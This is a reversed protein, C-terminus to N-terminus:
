RAATTVMSRASCALTRSRQGRGDPPFLSSAPPCPALNRPNGRLGGAATLILLLKLLVGEEMALVLAAPVVLRVVLRSLFFCHNFIM